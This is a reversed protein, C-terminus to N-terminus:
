DDLGTLEDEKPPRVSKIHREECAGFKKYNERAQNLSIGNAMGELDPNETQFPDDEWYCVPCIDYNGVSKKTFTYYGCCPCSYKLAKSKETKRKIFKFM